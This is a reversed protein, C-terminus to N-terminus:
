PCDVCPAPGGNFIFQILYVADTINVIGDCNADGAEVSVPDPGDNFIYQILYVADTINVIADGNADGCAFGEFTPVLSRLGWCDWIFCAPQTGFPEFVIQGPGPAAVAGLPILYDGPALIDLVVGTPPLESTPCTVRLQGPVEVGAVRIFLEMDDWWPNTAPANFQAQYFDCGGCPGILAPVDQLNFGDAFTSNSTHPGVISYNFEDGSADSGGCSGGAFDERNSAAATSDQKVSSSVTLTFMGNDNHVWFTGGDEGVNLYRRNNGEQYGASGPLNWNFTKVRTKSGDANEKYVSINGCGGSGKFDFCFQGNPPCVIKKWECYEKFQYRVFSPGAEDHSGTAQAARASDKQRKGELATRTAGPPLTDIIQQLSDARREWRDIWGQLWTRYWNRASDVATEYADGATLREIKKKLYEHVGTDGSWGVTNPGAASNGHVETHGKDDITKLTDVMDGGYCEIFEDYLVDLSSDCLAQQMDTFERPSLRNAGLLVAGQDNSGHNTVMKQVTTPKNDRHCQAVKKAIEDHAAQINAETAEDVASDPIVGSNDSDGDFYIVKVNEPCYGGGGMDSDKTKYKYLAEINQWYSAKNSAANGGGSILIAFKCPDCAAAPGFLDEDVDYSPLPPPLDYGHYIYEYSTATITIQLTDSPYIVYPEPATSITGTVKMVGGYWFDPDPLTGDLFLISSPPMLEDAMYDGYETVLKSDEDSVFEGFVTVMQGDLAAINDYVEPITYFDPPPACGSQAADLGLTFAWIQGPFGFDALDVLTDAAFNYSICSGPAQDTFLDFCNVSDVFSFSIFFPGYICITDVFDVGLTGCGPGGTASVSITDSSFLLGAPTPCADNSADYVEFYMDTTCADDFCLAFVMGTIGYPTSPVCNSTAPDQYLYYTEDGTVWAGINFGSGGPNPLSCTDQPAAKGPDLSVTLVRSLSIDAAEPKFAGDFNAGLGQAILLLSLWVGTWLKTKLGHM